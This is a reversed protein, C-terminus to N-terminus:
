MSTNKSGARRREMPPKRINIMPKKPHRPASLSFIHKSFATPIMVKVNFNKQNTKRQATM